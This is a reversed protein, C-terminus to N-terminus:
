DQAHTLNVTCTLLALAYKGKAMFASLKRGCIWQYLGHAKGFRIPLPPLFGLYLHGSVRLQTLAEWFSTPFGGHCSELSKLGVNM